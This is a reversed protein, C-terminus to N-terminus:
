MFQFRQEAGEAILGSCWNLDDFHSINLVPQVTFSSEGESYVLLGSTGSAHGKPVAICSWFHRAVSTERRATFM